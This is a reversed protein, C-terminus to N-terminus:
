FYVSDGDRRKVPLFSITRDPNPRAVVDFLIKVPMNRATEAQTRTRIMKLVFPESGLRSNLSTICKEAIQFSIYREMEWSEGNETIRRFDVDTWAPLGYGAREGSYDVAGVEIGHQRLFDCIAGFLEDATVNVSRKKKGLSIEVPLVPKITVPVDPVQTTVKALEEKAKVNGKDAAKRWWEIAKVRNKPVGGGNAYMLGMLYQADTNEQDAAKSCWKAAEAWDQPGGWGNGYMIGLQYQASDNDQDAAKHFWKLAGAYDQPVGTGNLYMAGLSYQAGANNQDAAKRLWKLGEAGDQPVGTGQGYMAGLSCQASADGQDAAKRLWRLAEAGDQPVGLGQAYMAGLSAQGGANNQEAAKRYWSVAEAHDLPVGKGNNHAFGSIFRLRVTGWIM